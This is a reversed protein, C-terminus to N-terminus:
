IYFYFIFWKKHCDSFERRFDNLLFLMNKLNIKIIFKQFSFYKNIQYFIFYINILIIIVVSKTSFSSEPIHARMIQSEIGLYKQQSNAYSSLNIFLANCKSFLFLVSKKKEAVRWDIRNLSSPPMWNYPTNLLFLTRSVFLKLFNLNM